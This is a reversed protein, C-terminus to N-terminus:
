DHRVLGIFEMVTPNGDGDTHWHQRRGPLAETFEVAVTTSRIQRLAAWAAHPHAFGLWQPKSARASPGDAIQTLFVEEPLGHRRRWREVRALFRVPSAGREPRPVEDPRIRWTARQLVVRGQQRRPRHGMVQSPDGPVIAWPDSLTALLRDIPGLMDRPVAGLYALAAPAGAQDAVQLTGTRRDHSVTFGRLDTADGDRDALEPGWGARSIGRLAPRQFGVWDAQASMQYVRCGPHIGALWTRLADDLAGHLAPVSAWRGALGAMGCHVRNVILLHDGAEVAAASAAAVQFFVTGFARGLTRHGGLDGAPAGAAHHAAAPWSLSPVSGLVEYAFGLLDATRGAGHRHLFHKLLHDYLVSRRVDPRLATAISDLDARVADGLRPDHRPDHAATESMLGASGLWAPPRGGLARLGEGLTRRAREVDAARRRPDGTGAVRGEIEALARVADAAPGPARGIRRAFDTFHRGDASRWPALPQLVGVAILRRVTAPDADLLAAIERATRPEAPLLSLHRAVLGCDTLEDERLSVGNVHCYLPLAALVRGDVERVSPNVVLPLDVPPEAHTTWARLLEMAAARSSSPSRPALAADHRSSGDWGVVGVTSLTGFPSPKVAIRSLYATASRMLRSDWEPVAPASEGLLGATFTPSALALGLATRPERLWTLLARGANALEGGAAREAAALAEASGRMTELWLMLAERVTDALHGAVVPAAEAARAWRLNHVDRRLRLAARRVPRDVDESAVLLYLGHGVREGLRVGREELAVAARVLRVTEAARLSDLVIVPLGCRRSVVIPASTPM